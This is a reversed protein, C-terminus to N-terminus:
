PLIIFRSSHRTTEAGDPGHGTVLVRYEVGAPRGEFLGHPLDISLAGTEGEWVTAGGDDIVEVHYRSVAGEGAPWNLAAPAEALRGRPLDVTEAPGAGRYVNEPAGGGPMLPFLVLLLVAVAAGSFVLRRPTSSITLFRKLWDAFSETARGGRFFVRFRPPPEVREFPKGEFAEELMAGVEEESIRKEKMANM